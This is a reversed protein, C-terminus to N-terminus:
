IKSKKWMKLLNRRLWMEMMMMTKTLQQKRCIVIMVDQLVFM